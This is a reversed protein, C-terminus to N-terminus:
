MKGGRGRRDSREGREERRVMKKGKKKRGGGSRARGEERGGERHDFKCFNERSTLFFLYDILIEFHARNELAKLALLAKWQRSRCIGSLFFWSPLANASPEGRERKGGELDLVRGVRSGGGPGEASGFRDGGHTLISSIGDPAPPVPSPSPDERPFWGEGLIQLQVLLFSGCQTTM